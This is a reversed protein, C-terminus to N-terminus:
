PVGPSGAHEAALMGYVATDTWEGKCWWNQRLHAEQRMGLRVCLRASATNRPDLQAAVRYMSYEEFAITLLAQAAETAYGRGAADPHLVWGIEGCALTDDTPWLVVDGIVRGDLVMVLALATGPGDIGTRAVRKAMEVPTSEATWAAMPVYRAVDDRGYIERLSPADDEHVHRLLLRDTTVPVTM